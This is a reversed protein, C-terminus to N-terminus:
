PHGAPKQPAAAPEPNIELLEVQFILAANPGIKGSTGGAGYALESPIYLEFKDGVKMLQLAEVWGKIVGKVPFTVPEGREVSSDFVDGDILTGHYHVKVKDSDKPMAAGEEGSELVKYQLGSETTVVGEKKANEALFDQGKKLNEDAVVKREEDRKAQQEEQFKMMVAQQEERPILPEKDELVDKMARVMIDIDLDLKNTKAQSAINFGVVYTMKQEVPELNIEKAQAPAATAEEKKAEENCGTLMLASIVAASLLSSKHINHTKM